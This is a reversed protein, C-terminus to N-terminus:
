IGNESSYIFDVFMDGSFAKALWHPITYETFYDAAAFLKLSRDVDAPRVFVDLDKTHRHIGTYCAFGYAGGVLFPIDSEVLMMLARRYFDAFQPELELKEASAEFTQMSAEWHIM